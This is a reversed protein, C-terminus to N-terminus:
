RCAHWRAPLTAFNAVVTHPDNLPEGQWEVWAHGFTQGNERRVGLRLEAAVGRRALLRVLALSRPLCRLSVLHHNAAVDVLWATRLVRERSMVTDAPRVACAWQKLRDIPVVTLAVRVVSITWAAQALGVWDATSLEAAKDVKRRWTGPLVQKVLAWVLRAYRRLWVGSVSQAGADNWAWPPPALWRIVTELRQGWSFVQLRSLWPSKWWWPPRRAHFLAAARRGLRRDSERGLGRPWDPAPRGFLMACVEFSATCAREWGSERALRDFRRWNLEGGFRRSFLELDCVPRLLTWSHQAGHRCLYLLFAERDDTPQGAPFSEGTWHWHLEVRLGQHSRLKIEPFAYDVQRTLRTLSDANWNSAHDTCGLNKLAAYAHQVQGPPVLLDIDGVPRWSLDPYLLEVLRVGKIPRCSIGM